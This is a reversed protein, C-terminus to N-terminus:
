NLNHYLLHIFFIDSFTNSWEGSLDLTLPFELPDCIKKLTGSDNEYQFRKLTVCLMQPLSILHLRKEADQLGYPEIARYQNEGSLLDPQSFMNVLADKLNRFGVIDITLDLFKQKRKKVFDVNICQITQETYGRFIHSPITVDDTMGPQKNQGEEPQVLSDDIDHFLRLMFEQADEQTGVNLNLAQAVQRPDATYIGDDDTMMEQFLWTIKEGISNEVFMTELVKERYSTCHFMSQLVSNMYCTNALNRLGVAGSASQGLKTSSSKGRRLFPPILRRLFGFHIATSSTIMWFLLLLLCPSNMRLM